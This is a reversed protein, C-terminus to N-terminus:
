SKYMFEWLTKCSQFDSAGILRCAIYAHPKTLMGLHTIMFELAPDREEAAVVCLMCCHVLYWLIGHFVFM